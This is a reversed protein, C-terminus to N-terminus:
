DKLHNNLDLPRTGGTGWEYPLQCRSVGAELLEAALWHRMFSHLYERGFKSRIRKAFQPGGDGQYHREARAVLRARPTPVADPNLHYILDGAEAIVADAIIEPIIPTDDTITSM